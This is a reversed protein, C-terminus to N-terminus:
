QASPPTRNQSNADSPLRHLVLFCNCCRVLGLPSPLRLSPECQHGPLLIQMWVQIWVISAGLKKDIHYYNFCRILPQSILFPCLCVSYMLDCSHVVLASAQKWRKRNLLNTRVDYVHKWGFAACVLLNGPWPLLGQPLGGGRGKLRGDPRLWPNRHWDALLTFLICPSPNTENVDAFCRPGEVEELLHGTTHWFQLKWYGTIM